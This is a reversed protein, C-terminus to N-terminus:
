LEVRRLCTVWPEVRSSIASVFHLPYAQVSIIETGNLISHCSQPTALNTIIRRLGPIRCTISWFFLGPNVRSSVAAGDALHVGNASRSGSTDPQESGALIADIDSTNLRGTALSQPGAAPPTTRKSDEHLSGMTQRTQSM